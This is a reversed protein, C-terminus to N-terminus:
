IIKLNLKVIAANLLAAFGVWLAYPVFLSAAITDRGAEFVVFTLVAGLLTLIVLLATRPAHGRFFIPSWAFNLALQVAWLALAAPDNRQWTRSGAIAILIYLITWAPAFLWNPPSFVPKRLREYWEGPPCALGIAVGGGLTM